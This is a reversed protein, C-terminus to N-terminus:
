EHSVRRGEKLVRELPVCNLLGQRVWPHRAARSGVRRKVSGEDLREHGEIRLVLKLLLSEFEDGTSERSLFDRLHPFREVLYVRIVRPDYRVGLEGRGKSTEPHSVDGLNLGQHLVHVRIAVAVDGPLLEQLRRSLLLHDVVLVVHPPSEALVVLVAIALYGHLLQALCELPLGLFDDLYAPNPHTCYVKM